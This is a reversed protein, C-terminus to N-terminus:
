KDRQHTLTSIRDLSRIQCLRCPCVFAIKGKKVVKTFWPTLNYSRTHVKKQITKFNRQCLFYLISCKIFHIVNLAGNSKFNDIPKPSMHIRCLCLCIVYMTYSCAIFRLNISSPPYIEMWNAWTRLRTKNQTAWKGYVAADIKGGPHHWIIHSLRWSCLPSLNM